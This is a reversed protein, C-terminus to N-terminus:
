SVKEDKVVENNEEKKNKSNKNILLILALIFLSSIVTTIVGIIINDKNSLKNTIEVVDPENNKVLSDTTENKLEENKDLKEKVETDEGEESLIWGSYKKNEVYYWRAKTKRDNYEYKFWLSTGAPISTDSATGDPKDYVYKDTELTQTGDEKDSEYDFINYDLEAWYNKNKYSIYIYEDEDTSYQYCKTIITSAPLTIIEEGDIDDLLPVDKANILSVGTRCFGDLNNMCALKNDIDKVWTKKSEIYYASNKIQGNERKWGEFTRTIATGKKITGNSKDTTVSSYTPVDKVLICSSDYDNEEAYLINDMDVWLYKDNYRLVLVRRDEDSKTEYYYLYIDKDIITDKPIIDEVKNKLDYSDYLPTDELFWHKSTEYALESDDKVWGYYNENEIYYWGEVYAKSIVIDNAKAKIDKEKYKLSPGKYLTTDKVVYKKSYDDESGQAEKFNMKSMEDSTFYEKQLDSFTLEDKLPSIRSLNVYYATDFDYYTDEEASENNDDQYEIMAYYENDNVESEYVVRIQTNYKLLTSTKTLVSSEESSRQYLYAGSKDSIYADYQVFIPGGGDALVVLPVFLIITLLVKITKIKLTRMKIM